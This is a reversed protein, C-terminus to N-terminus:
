SYCEGEQVNEDDSLSLVKATGAQQSFLMHKRSESKLANLNISTLLPTQERVAIDLIFKGPSTSSMTFSCHTMCSYCHVWFLFSRIQIQNHAFVVHSMIKLILQLSLFQCRCFCKHKYVVRDYFAFVNVITVFQGLFHCTHICKRKDYIWVCFSLQSYM